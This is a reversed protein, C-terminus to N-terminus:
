DARGQVYISDREEGDGGISVRASGIGAPGSLEHWGNRESLMWVADEAGGRGQVWGGWACGVGVVWRWIGAGVYEKKQCHKQLEAFSSNRRKFNPKIPNTKGPDSPPVNKWLTKQPLPKPDNQTQPFQTQKAFFSASKDLIRSL